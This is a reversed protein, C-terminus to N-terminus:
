HVSCFGLAVDWIFLTSSNARVHVCESKGGLGQSWACSELASVNVALHQFFCAHLSPAAQQVPAVDRWANSVQPSSPGLGQKILKATQVLM